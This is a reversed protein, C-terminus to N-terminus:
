VPSSSDDSAVSNRHKCGATSTVAYYDEPDELMAIQMDGQQDTITMLPALRTYGYPMLSKAAHLRLETPQNKDCMVKFMFAM